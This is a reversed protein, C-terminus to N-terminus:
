PADGSLESRLRRRARFLLTGVQSSSVGVLGGIQAYDLGAFHRLVLPVRYRPPLSDIAALLRARQEDSVVQQLPSPGADAHAAADLESEEFLRREASRRRLLDICHHAAVALLWPRLPRSRDWSALREHARLFVEGLADDAATADGLMRRCLRRVDARHARFAADVGVADGSAAGGARESVAADEAPPAACRPLGDARGAPRGIAGLWAVAEFV